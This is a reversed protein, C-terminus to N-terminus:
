NKTSDAEATDRGSERPRERPVAEGTKEDAAAGRKVERRVVRISPPPASNKETVSRAARASEEAARRMAEVAATEDTTRAPAPRAGPKQITPTRSPTNAPQRAPSTGPKTVPSRGPFLDEIKVRPLPGSHREIV